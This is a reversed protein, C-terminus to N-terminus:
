TFEYTAVGGYSDTNGDEDYKIILYGEELKILESNMSYNKSHVCASLSVVLTVLTIFFAKKM